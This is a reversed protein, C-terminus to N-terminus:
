DKLGQQPGCMWVNHYDNEKSDKTESINKKKKLPDDV